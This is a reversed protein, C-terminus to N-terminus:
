AMLLDLAFYREVAQLTYRFHLCVSLNFICSMHPSEKYQGLLLALGAIPCSVTPVIPALVFAFEWGCTTFRVCWCPGSENWITTLHVEGRHLMHDRPALNHCRFPMSLFYTTTHRSSPEQWHFNVSCSSNGYPPLWRVLKAQCHHCRFKFPELAM